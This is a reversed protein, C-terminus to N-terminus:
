NKLQPKPYSCRLLILVQSQCKQQVRQRTTHSDGDRWLEEALNFVRIDGVPRLAEAAASRECIRV